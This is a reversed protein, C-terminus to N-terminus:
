KEKNYKNSLNTQIFEISHYFYYLMTMYKDGINMNNNFSYHYLIRSKFYKFGNLIDEETFINPTWKSFYGLSSRRVDFDNTLIIKKYYIYSSGDDSSLKSVFEEKTNM